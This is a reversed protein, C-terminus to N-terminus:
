EDCSSAFTGLSERAKCVGGECLFGPHCTTSPDTGANKPTSKSDGCGAIAATLLAFGLGLQGLRLAAGM